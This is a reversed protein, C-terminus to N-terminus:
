MSRGNIRQQTDKLVLDAGDELLDRAPKSVYSKFKDLDEVEISSPLQWEISIGDNFIMDIEADIGISALEENTRDRFVAGIAEIWGQVSRFDEAKYIPDISNREIVDHLSVDYENCCDIVHDIDSVSLGSLPQVFMLIRGQTHNLMELKRNEQQLKAVQKRLDDVENASDLQRSRYNKYFVDYTRVFADSERDSSIFDGRVKVVNQCVANFEPDEKMRRDFEMMGKYNNVKTEYLEKYVDNFNKVFDQYDVEDKFSM